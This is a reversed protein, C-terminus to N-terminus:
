FKHFKKNWDLIKGNQIKIGEKRLMNTKVDDGYAYGGVKGDSKVVRHCPIISPYPNKKMIQGIVRQGNKLGVANALESYTTVKGQPVQTLKKYVQQDLNM